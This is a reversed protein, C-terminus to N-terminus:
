FWYSVNELIYEDDSALCINSNAPLIRCSRHSLFVSRVLYGSDAEQYEDSLGIRRLRNSIRLSAVYAVKDTRGDM